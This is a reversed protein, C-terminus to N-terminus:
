PLASYVESNASAVGVTVAQGMRLRLKKVAGLRYSKMDYENERTRRVHSQRGVSLGEYEM